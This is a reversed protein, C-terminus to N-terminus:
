ADSAYFEAVAASADDAVGIWAAAVASPLAAAAALAAAALLEAAAVRSQFWIAPM